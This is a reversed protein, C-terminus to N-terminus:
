GACERSASDAAYLREIEAAFHHLIVGRRLKLTPTLEDQEVSFPRDVIAFKGVQEWDSLGTLCAAVRRSVLSEIAAPSAPDQDQLSCRLQDRYARLCM